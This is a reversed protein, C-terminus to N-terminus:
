VMKNIYLHSSCRPIMGRQYQPTNVHPLYWPLHKWPIGHTYQFHFHLQETRDSEKCGWPSYGVMNRWGHSKGPLFVPTPQWASPPQIKVAQSNLSLKQLQARSSLRLPQTSNTLHVFHLLCLPVSHTYAQSCHTPPVRCRMRHKRQSNSTRKWYVQDNTKCSYNINLHSTNTTYTEVM